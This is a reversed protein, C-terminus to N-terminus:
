VAGKQKGYFFMVLCGSLLVLALGFWQVAYGLHREPSINVIKWGPELGSVLSQDLRLLLPYLRPHRVSMRAMDIQQIRIVRNEPWYDRALLFSDVPQVLRGQLRLSEVPLEVEPLEARSASGAIWGLNVLITQGQHEPLFVGIVEYGVRGERTRNDLLYYTDPEFRGALDLRSGVTVADTEPLHVLQPARQWQQLLIQKQGARDLQWFGLGTLLPLFILALLFIIRKIWRQHQVKSM